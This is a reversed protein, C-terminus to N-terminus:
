SLNPGTCVSASVVSLVAMRRGGAVSSTVPLTMVMAAMAQCSDRTAFKHRAYHIVNNRQLLILFVEKFLDALAQQGRGRVQWDGGHAFQSM